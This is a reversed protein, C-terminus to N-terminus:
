ERSEFNSLKGLMGALLEVFVMEEAIGETMLSSFSFDLRLSLRMM